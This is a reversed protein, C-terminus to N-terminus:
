RSTIDEAKQALRQVHERNELVVDAMARLSDSDLFPDRQRAQFAM